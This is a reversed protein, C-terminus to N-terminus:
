RNYAEVEVMHFGNNASNHLGHIRIYKVARKKFRLEQWSRREEESYDALPQYTKGDVSTEVRYRYSRGDGDWLLMRIHNLEYIQDLTLNFVCPFNGMAFGTSGTYETSNGDNLQAAHMPAKAIAGASALAVNGTSQAGKAFASPDIVNGFVDVSISSKIALRKEKLAALLILEQDKEAKEIAKDLQKLARENAKMVEEMYEARAEDLSTQHKDLAREVNSPWTIASTDVTPTESKLIDQEPQADEAQVSCISLAYSLFCFLLSFCLQTIAHMTM